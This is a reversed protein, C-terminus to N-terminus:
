TDPELPEPEQEAPEARTVLVDLDAVIRREWVQRAELLERIRHLDHVVRHRWLSWVAGTILAAIVVLAALEADNRMPTVARDAM